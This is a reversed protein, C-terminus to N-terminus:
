STFPKFYLEAINRKLCYSLKRLLIYVKKAESFGLLKSSWSIIAMTIFLAKTIDAVKVPPLSMRQLWSVSNLRTNRAAVNKQM